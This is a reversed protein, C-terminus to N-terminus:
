ETGETENLVAKAAERVQAITTATSLGEALAKATDVETKGNEEKQKELFDSLKPCKELLIKNVM